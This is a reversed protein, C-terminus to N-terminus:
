VKLVFIVVVSFQLHVNLIWSSVNYVGGSVILTVIYPGDMYGM